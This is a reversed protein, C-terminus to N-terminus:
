RKSDAVVWANQEVLERWDASARAKKEEDGELGASWANLVLVMKLHVGRYESPVRLRLLAAQVALLQEASADEADISSSELPSFGGIASRVNEQYEVALVQPTKQNALKREERVVSLVVALLLLTLVILIVPFYTPHPKFLHRM